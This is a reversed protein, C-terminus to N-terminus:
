VAILAIIEHITEGVKASKYGITLKSSKDKFLGNNFVILIVGIILVM